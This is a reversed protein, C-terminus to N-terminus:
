ESSDNEIDDDDYIADVSFVKSVHRRDNGLM